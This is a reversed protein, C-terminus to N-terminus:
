ASVVEYTHLIEWYLTFFKVFGKSESFLATSGEEGSVMIVMARQQDILFVGGAVPPIKMNKLSAPHPKVCVSIDGPLPGEWRDTVVRIPISGERRFLATVIEERLFGGFFLIDISSEAQHLLDILRSRINDDGRISWIFEQDGREKVPRDRYIRSLMKKARAADSEVTKMLHEIGDEPPIADFRRPTTHSVSVLNKQILRDLVPYVSARPVGSIEHIETATAGSVRLLGIYVLAEYKTLGLSKLSETLTLNSPATEAM